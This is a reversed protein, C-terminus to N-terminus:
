TAARRMRRLAGSAAMRALMPAALAVEPLLSPRPLRADRLQELVHRGRYYRQLRAVERRAPSPLSLSALDDFLSRWNAAARLRHARQTGITRLASEGHHRYFGRPEKVVELSTGGTVLKVLFHFDQGPRFRPDYGDSREFDERHVILKFLSPRTFLEHLNERDILQPGDKAFWDALLTARGDPAPGSEYVVDSDYV